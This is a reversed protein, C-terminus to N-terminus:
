SEYIASAAAEAAALVELRAQRAEMAGAWAALVELEVILGSLEGRLRAAREGRPEVVTVMDRTM